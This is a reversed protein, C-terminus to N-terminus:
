DLPEVVGYAFFVVIRQYQDPNENDYEQRDMPESSPLPRRDRTSAVNITNRTQQLEANV